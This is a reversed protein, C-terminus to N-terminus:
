YAGRLVTTSYFTKTVIVGKTNQIGVSFRIASGHSTTIQTAGFSTIHTTSPNLTGVLANNKYLVLDTGSLRIRISDTGNGDDDDDDEDEDEDHDSSPVTLYVDANTDNFTSTNEIAIAGRVERAVREMVVHATDLTDRNAEVHTYSKMITIMTQTFALSLMAFLAIYVVTEIITYGRNTNRTSM